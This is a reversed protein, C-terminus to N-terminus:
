ECCFGEMVQGNTEFKEQMGIEILQWYFQCKVGLADAGRSYIDLFYKYETPVIESSKISQVVSEVIECLQLDINEEIISDHIM